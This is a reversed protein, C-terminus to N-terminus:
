FQGVFPLSSGTVPLTGKADDTLPTTSPIRVNTLLSYWLFYLSGSSHFQRGEGRGVENHGKM